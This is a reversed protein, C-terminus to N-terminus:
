LEYQLVSNQMLPEEQKIAQMILDHLRATDFLHLNQMFLLARLDTANYNDSIYSLWDYSENDREALPLQSFDTELGKTAVMKAIKDGPASERTALVLAVCMAGVLASKADHTKAYKSLAGLCLALKGTRYQYEFDLVHNRESDPAQASYDAYFADNFANLPEKTNVLQEGFADKEEDVPYALVRKREEGKRKKMSATEKRPKKAVDGEGDDSQHRKLSQDHLNFYIKAAGNMARTYMPKTYLRKGWELMELYARPTGKRMCYSHFDLQDDEFQKYFKSIAHFRKLALGEYKEVSWELERLDSEDSDTAAAAAAAAAQAETLKKQASVHLRHYAEAQEVIFWSAEVLHLDKVGNVSEDNKTFLSAVDVAKDVMNARLYYKVTKCNIFRDQLDLKRGEEVIAAAQELQGTHKLIRGKLIYFEVMTPTHTLANDIHEQAAQYQRLNLFHQALFYCSWIYPIPQEKPDQESLYQLVIKEMLKPVVHRRKSYLPKVNSFTAPVGRKLLPLVYEGLKKSLEDEDQIFTLPMFKPAECRPYFKALKEYLVKKLKNNGNIGLSVELLKYYKFNDPNRKILTRYVISADKLQGLKMYISAKRELLGFKDYVNAEIDDLHHLVNKLKDPNDGAAKYMIDNKYILCENNEYMEAEGLKGEALKEFQSLTNVAQQREGNIDQAVALSTWNARYGMFAEWYKKRAVLAAKFDGVQSHLTALDRYIQKNTSGNDLSAQFWKISDPYVKTARMYIGLLHCCIASAKTGDIKAVSQKIYDAADEKDGQYYFCLGKLALMDATSGKKMMTDLMKLAKKYQKGEYLKLAELFQGHQDKGAGSAKGAPKGKMGGRRRSM